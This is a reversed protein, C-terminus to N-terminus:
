QVAEELKRVDLESIPVIKNMDKSPDAYGLIRAAARPMRNNLIYAAYEPSIGLRNLLACFDGRTMRKKPKHDIDLRKWFEPDGDIMGKYIKQVYGYSFGTIEMVDSYTYRNEDCIQKLKTM